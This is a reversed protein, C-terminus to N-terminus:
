RALAIEYFRSRPGRRYGGGFFWLVWVLMMAGLVQQPASGFVSQFGGGETTCVPGLVSAGAIVGALNTGFFRAILAVMAGFMFMWGLSGAIGHELYGQSPLGIGTVSYEATQPTTLGLAIVFPNLAYETMNPKNPWFIRPILSTVLMPYVMGGTNPVSDPVVEVTYALTGLESLRGVTNEEATLSRGHAARSADSSETLARGWATMVSAQTDYERIARYYSKAPQLVVVMAVAIGAIIIPFRERARWWLPAVGALPVLLISLMSTMAVVVAVTGFAVLLQVMHGPRPAVLYTTMAVVLLPTHYFIAQIINAVPLLVARSAPVGVNLLVYGAAICLHVVSAASLVTADIKPLLWRGSFRKPVQRLVFFGAVMALGSALAVFSAYDFSDPHPIIGAIGIPIPHTFLAIDYQIYHYVLMLEIWPLRAPRVRVYRGLLSVVLAAQLGGYLATPLSYYDDTLLTQVLFASVCLTIDNTTPWPRRVGLSLDILTPTYVPPVEVAKSAETITDAFTPSQDAM